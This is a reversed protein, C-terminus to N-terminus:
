SSLTTATGAVALQSNLDVSPAPAPGWSGHPRAASLSLSRRPPGRPNAAPRQTEYRDSVSPSSGLADSAWEIARISQLSAPQIAQHSLAPVGRASSGPHHLRLDRGSRM